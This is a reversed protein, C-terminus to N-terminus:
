TFYGTQTLFSYAANVCMMQRENGGRAPHCELSRKRFQKTLDALTGPTKLGMIELAVGNTATRRNLIKEWEQPVDEIGFDAEWGPRVKGQYKKRLKGSERWYVYWYPGHPCTKCSAKGCRIYEQRWTAM